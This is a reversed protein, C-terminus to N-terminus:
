PNDCRRPSHLISFSSFSSGIAYSRWPSLTVGRQPGHLISFPKATFGECLFDEVIEMRWDGLIPGGGNLSLTGRGWEGDKSFPFFSTHCGRNKLECIKNGHYGLPQHKMPIFLLAM